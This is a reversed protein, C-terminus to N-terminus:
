GCTRWQEPTGRATNSPKSRATGPPRGKLRMLGDPQAVIWRQPGQRRAPLRQCTAPRKATLPGRRAAPVGFRLAAQVAPANQTADGVGAAPWREGGRTQLRKILVGRPLSAPHM